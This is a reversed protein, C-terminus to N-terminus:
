QRWEGDEWERDDESDLTESLIEELVLEHPELNAFYRQALHWVNYRLSGYKIKATQLQRQAYGLDRVLRDREARLELLAAPISHQLVVSLARVTDCTSHPVRRVVRREQLARRAIALERRTATLERHSALLQTHLESVSM